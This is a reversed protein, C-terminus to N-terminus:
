AHAVEPHEALYDELIYTAALADIDAKTYPKKRNALEAEAKVSTLAEDQFSLPLGCYHQAERAFAEARATQETAQGALNRPLGAVLRSADHERALRAIKEFITPTRELTTLPRAIRVDPSAIAVGVRAEGIDISLIASSVM